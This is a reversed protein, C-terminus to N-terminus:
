DGDARQIELHLTFLMDVSCILQPHRDIYAMNDHDAYIVKPVRQHAGSIRNSYGARSIFRAGASYRSTAPPGCSDSACVFCLWPIIRVILQGICVLFWLQDGMASTNSLPCPCNYMWSLTTPGFASYWWKWAEVSECTICEWAALMVGSCAWELLHCTIFRPEAKDSGARSGVM